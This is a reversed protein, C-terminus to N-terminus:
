FPLHPTEFEPIREYDVLIESDTIEEEEEGKEETPEEVKVKPVIEFDEMIGGQKDALLLKAIITKVEKKGQEDYNGPEVIHSIFWFRDTFKKVALYDDWLEKNFLNNMKAAELIAIKLENNAVIKNLNAKIYAKLNAINEELGQKFPVIDILSTTSMEEYKDVLEDFLMASAIRSFASTNMFQKLTIVNKIHKVKNFERPGITVFQISGRKNAKRIAKFLLTDEEGDVNVYLIHDKKISEIKIASKEFVIDGGRKSARIFGITVDGVQKNLGLKASESKTAKLMLRKREIFEQLETNEENFEEVIFMTMLEKVARQFDTILGRWHMKDRSSLNLVHEYDALKWLSIDSVDFLTFSSGYKTTLYTKNYGRFEERKVAIVDHKHSSYRRQQCVDLIGRTHKLKVSGWQNIEYFSKFVYSFGEFYRFHALSFHKYGELQRTKMMPVGLESRDFVGSMPIEFDDIQLYGGLESTCLAEALNSFPKVGENYKEALEVLVKKIRELILTKTKENTIYSERSPTPILGDSLNFRLAIPVSVSKIGLAAWDIEYYVDKLCIHMTPNRSQSSHQWLESRYIKSQTIYGDILLVATDYYALKQRAKEIFQGRETYDKITIEAIVGNEETTPQEHILDYNVFEEGEFVLYKREIGDKRCTFLASRELALFSKMGIGFHGITSDDDEKTSTLYNMCINKFDEDDLGIGTDKVSFVFHNQANQHISVIVPNEIPDKGSQVVSDIGNNTWEAIVATIPDKYLGKTLIHQLKALKSQNIKAQQLNTDGTISVDSAKKEIIM